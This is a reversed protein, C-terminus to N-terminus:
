LLLLLLGCPGVKRTAVVGGGARLLLRWWPELGLTSYLTPYPSTCSYDAADISEQVLETAWYRRSCCSFEQLSIQSPFSRVGLLLLPQISRGLAPRQRQSSHPAAAAQAPEEVIASPNAAVAVCTHQLLFCVWRRLWCCCGSALDIKKSQVSSRPCDAPSKGVQSGAMGAM